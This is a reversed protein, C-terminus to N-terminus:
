AIQLSSVAAIGWAAMMLGTGAIHNEVQRWHGLGGAQDQGRLQSRGWGLWATRLGAGTGILLLGMLSLPGALHLFNLVGGCFGLM